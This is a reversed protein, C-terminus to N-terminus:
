HYSRMAASVLGFIVILAILPLFTWALIRVKRKEAESYESM